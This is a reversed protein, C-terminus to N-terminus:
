KSYFSFDSAIEALSPRSLICSSWPQNHITNVILWHIALEESGHHNDRDAPVPGQACRDVGHVWLAPLVRARWYGGDPALRGNRLSSACRPWRGRRNPSHVLCGTEIAPLSSSAGTSSSSIWPGSKPANWFSTWSTAAACLLPGSLSIGPVPMSGSTSGNVARKSADPAASRSTKRTTM